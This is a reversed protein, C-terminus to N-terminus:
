SCLVDLCMLGCSPCSKASDFVDPVETEIQRLLEQVEDASTKSAVYQQQVRDNLFDIVEVCRATPSSRVLKRVISALRDTTVFLSEHAFTRRFHAELELRRTMTLVERISVRVIFNM